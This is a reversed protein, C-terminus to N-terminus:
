SDKEKSIMNILEYQLSSADAPIPGSKETVKVQIQYLYGQEFDFGQVQDYFLKWAEPEVESGKQIQLCKMPGVGMCDVKSSNVWWLEVQHDEPQCGAISLLISSFIVLPKM